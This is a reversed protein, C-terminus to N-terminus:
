WNEDEEDDDIEPDFAEEEEAEEELAVEAEIVSGGMSETAELRALIQNYYREPVVEKVAAIIRNMENMAKAAEALGADKRTLENLKLAATMGLEVSVNDFNEDTLKKYAKVMMTELYSMANLATTTGEIFNQENEKARDEM